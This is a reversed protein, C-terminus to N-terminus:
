PFRRRWLARLAFFLMELTLAIGLLVGMPLLSRGLAESGIALWEFAAVILAPALYAAGEDASVPTLLIVTLPWVLALALSRSSFNRFLLYAALMMGGVALIYIIWAFQYSEPTLM